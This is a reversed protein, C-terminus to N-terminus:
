QQEIAFWRNHGICHRTLSTTTLSTGLIDACGLHDQVSWGPRHGLPNFKVDWQQQTPHCATEIDAARTSGFKLIIVDWLNLHCFFGGLPVRSIGVPSLLFGGRHIRPSSHVIKLSDDGCSSSKNIKHRRGLLCNVERTIIMKMIGELRM